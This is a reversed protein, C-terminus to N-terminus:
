VESQFSRDGGITQAGMKFLSVVMSIESRAAWSVGESVREISLLALAMFASPISTQPQPAPSGSKSVGSCILAAVMEANCAPNVLYVGLEPMGSNRCAIASFNAASLPRVYRAVCTTTLLPAFCEHKLEANAVHWGPSSTMM